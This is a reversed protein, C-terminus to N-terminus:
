DIIGERKLIDYVIQKRYKSDEETKLNINLATIWTDKKTEIYGVFWGIQEPVRM